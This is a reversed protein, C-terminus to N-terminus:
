QHGREKSTKKMGLAERARDCTAEALDWREEFGPDDSETGLVGDLATTLDHALADLRRVQAVLAPVAERALVMFAADDENGSVRCVSDGVDDCVLVGPGGEREVTWPGPTAAAIAAEYMALAVDTITM